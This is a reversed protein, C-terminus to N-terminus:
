NSADPAVFSASRLEIWFRSGQNLASEVGYTGGMREIGAKVIALGVGTGPYSEQGHLREFVNFIRVQHDPAIGIGDDEVWLRVWGDQEEARVVIHVVQNRRRFKAANAVLNNMVQAFITRDARVPPFSPDVDVTVGADGMGSARLDAIAREISRAPDVVQMAVDARQVRSFALLDDILVEMRKAAGVIRNAYRQGEAGLGETHDDLLIRAFGEMARLPARLDHSVTYAFSDLQANSTALSETRDSVQSELTENAAVLSREAHKRETIDAVIGILRNKQSEPRGRLEIWRISSDDTHLVQCEVRLESENLLSIRMAEAVAGRDQVLVRELLANWSRDFDPAVGFITEFRSSRTTQGTEVDVEFTGLEGVDLALRLRTSSGRLDHLVRLRDVAAALLNAYGRLFSVDEESFDRPTRSDIQLIGFAARDKGGIIIVNAVARAGNDILFDAYKFRTEKAVDPSIMPEGSKLAYGESSDGAADITAVGVVGDKWGVGARVLLTKGDSQLEVVKALDTGLAQGVLRCAETLIEDLDDSQLALEGFKALITQQRLRQPHDPDM